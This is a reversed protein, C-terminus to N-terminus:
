ADTDANDKHAYRGTSTAVSEHQEGTAPHESGLRWYADGPKADTMHKVAEHPQVLGTDDVVVCAALPASEGALTTTVLASCARGETNVYVIPNGATVNRDM